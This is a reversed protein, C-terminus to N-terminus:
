RQPEIDSSAEFKAQWERKSYKFDFPPNELGMLDYLYKGLMLMGEDDPERKVIGAGRLVAILSEGTLSIKGQKDQLGLTRFDYDRDIPAERQGAELQHVTKGDVDEFTSVPIIEKSIVSIHVRSSALETISVKNILSM